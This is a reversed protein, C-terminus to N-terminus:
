FGFIKDTFFAFLLLSFFDRLPKRFQKDNRMKLFLFETQNDTTNEIKEAISYLGCSEGAQKSCIVATGNEELVGNSLDVAAKATDEHQNITANKCNENLFKSCQSIAQHHSYIQKLENAELKTKSFLCHHIPLSLTDLLEVPTNTIEKFTEPVVGGITNYSACVGYDIDGKKLADVVRKSSVLPKLIPQTNFNEREIFKLAAFYNNSFEVGQYGITIQNKNKM